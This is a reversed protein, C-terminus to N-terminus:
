QPAGGAEPRPMEGGAEPRPASVAAPAPAVKQGDTVFEHGVTILTVNESLGSVWAGEPADDLLSVPVFRVVDGDIVTRVGLKGDDNLTLASTPIQHAKRTGGNLHVEATLGSPISADPNDTWVDVRFTRTVDGAVRSIYHVTGGVERGSPLRITALDDIRLFEIDRETVQVIVRMPDLDVVMAVVEGKEVYDGPGPLLTEVFGDMPARIKTRAIDLRVAALRAEAAALDANSQALKVQSEFQKRQLDKSADYVIKAAAVQAEADRLQAARDNMALELLVAGKEVLAGKRAPRAIVQGDIEAKIEADKIANTRGTVILTRPHDVATLEQVGVSIVAGDGAHRAAVTQKEVPASDDLAGSAVWVIAALALLAALLISRKMGPKAPVPDAANDTDAPDNVPTTANMKNM